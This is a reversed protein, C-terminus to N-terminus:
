KTTGGTTASQTTNISPSIVPTTVPTTTQASPSSLNTPVITIQASQSASSQIPTINLRTKLSQLANTDFSAKIPTLKQDTKQSITSTTLAHLIGFAGGTIVLFLGASLTFIIDSRKM